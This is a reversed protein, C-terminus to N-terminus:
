FGQRAGTVPMGSYHAHVLRWTGNAKRYVQTERGHTEVAGGDKQLKAAFDWYFESWATEGYIHISVDKITLRRESFTQGMTQEYFQTKVANWGRQHGRPYIFSVDPTSAWITSALNTDAADAARAYTAILSRIATEDSSTAAGAVQPGVGAAVSGVLLWLGVLRVLCRSSM